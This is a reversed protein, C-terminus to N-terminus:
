GSEEIFGTVATAPKGIQLVNEEAKFQLLFTIGL